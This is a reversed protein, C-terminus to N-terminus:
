KILSKGENLSPYKIQLADCLTPCIDVLDAMEIFKPQINKGYIIAFGWQDEEEPAYGHMGKLENHRHYFNPYVVCGCKAAWYFDGYDGGPPPIRLDKARSIDIVEGFEDLEVNQKFFDEIIIKARENKFWIRAMTSDLFYRYDENKKIGRKSLKDLMSEINIHNAVDAMGHDGIFFITGDSYRKLFEEAIRMLRSDILYTTDYNKKNQPGYKHGSYDAEGLYLCYLDYEKEFAKIIDQERESDSTMQMTLSAFTDYFFTKKSDTIKNFVTELPFKEPIHMEKLDETLAIEGLLNIPIEYIPQAIKRVKKFYNKVFKRFLRGFFRDNFDFVSFLKIEFLNKFQSHESNYNLANFFNTKDPHAGTFIEARECFGLSPILSEVYISKECLSDLYPTYRFTMLEHNLYDWRFADILIFLVPSKLELSM